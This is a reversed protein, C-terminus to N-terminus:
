AAERMKIVTLNSQKKEKSLVKFRTGAKFLVENESPHSSLKVIHRGSFGEIQYELTGGGFAAKNGRSSSVFGREEHIYGVHYQDAFKGGEDHIRRTSIGIYPPLKDLAGNVGKVMEWTEDSLKGDRLQHNLTDYGHGTYHKIHYKDQSSLEGIAKAMAMEEENSAYPSTSGHLVASEAAKAAALQGAKWKEESFPAAHFSAEWAAKAKAMEPDVAAQPIQAQAAVVQKEFEAASLASLGVTVGMKKLKGEIKKAKELSKPDGKLILAAHQKLFSQKIQERLKQRLTPDTAEKLAKRLAVREATTGKIALKGTMLKEILAANASGSSAFEGGGHQGKPIRPHKQEEFADLTPHEDFVVDELDWGYRNV